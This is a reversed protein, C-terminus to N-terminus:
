GMPLPFKISHLLLVYTTYFPIQAGENALETSQVITRKGNEAGEGCERAECPQPVKPFRQSEEAYSLAHIGVLQVRLWSILLRVTM